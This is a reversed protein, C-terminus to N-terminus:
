RNSKRAFGRALITMDESRGSGILRGFEEATFSLNEDSVRPRGAGFFEKFWRGLRQM